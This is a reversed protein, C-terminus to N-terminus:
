VPPVANYGLTTCQYTMVIHNNICGRVLVLLILLASSYFFIIGGFCHCFWRGELLLFVRSMCIRLVGFPLDGKLPDGSFELSIACLSCAWDRFTPCLSGPM